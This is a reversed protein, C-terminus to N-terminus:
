INFKQFLSVCMCLYLCYIIYEAVIVFIFKLLSILPEGLEDRDDNDDFQEWCCCFIFEVLIIELLLIRATSDADGAAAAGGGGGGGTGGIGLVRSCDEDLTVVDENSFSFSEPMSFSSEFEINILTEIDSWFKCTLQFNKEM